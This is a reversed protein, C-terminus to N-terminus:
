GMGSPWSGVEQAETPVDDVVEAVGPEGQAKVTAAQVVKGLVGMFRSFGEAAREIVAPNSFLAGTPDLKGTERSAAFMVPRGDAWKVQPIEVADFPLKGTGEGGPVASDVIEANTEIPMEDGSFIKDLKRGVGRVRQMTSVMRDFTEAAADMEQAVTKSSQQAPPAGVGVGPTVGAKIGLAGLVRMVVAETDSMQVVPPPVPPAAPIAAQLPPLAGMGPRVGMRDLVRMVVGDLDIPQQSQAHPAAPVPPPMPPFPTGTPPGAPAISGPMRGERLAQLLEGMQGQLRATNERERQLEARLQEAEISERNSGNRGWSPLQEPHPEEWRQQPPAHPYAPPMAYQPPQQPPPEWAPPVYRQPEPPAGEYVGMRRANQRLAIIEEPDPMQLSGRRAYEGSDRWIFQIDYVCPGKAWTLHYNDRVYQFLRDGPSTSRDGLLANASFANGIPRSPPPDDCVVRVSLNYISKGQAKCEALLEPWVDMATRGTGKGGPHRPAENAATRVVRRRTRKPQPQPSPPPSEPFHVHGNTESASLEEHDAQDGDDEIEEHEREDQETMHTGLTHQSAFVALM